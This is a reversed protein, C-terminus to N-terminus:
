TVRCHAKGRCSIQLASVSPFESRRGIRKGGVHRPSAYVALVVMPPVYHCSGGDTGSAGVDEGARPRPPVLQAYRGPAGEGVVTQCAAETESLFDSLYRALFKAPLSFLLLKATAQLRQASLPLLKCQPM